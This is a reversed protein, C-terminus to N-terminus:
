PKKCMDALIRSVHQQSLGIIAGIEAQTHGFAYLVAIRRDRESLRALLQEFDIKLDVSELNESDFLDDIEYSEFEM